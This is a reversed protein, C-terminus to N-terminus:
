RHWRETWTVSAGGTGRSMSITHTGPTLVLWDSELTPATTEGAVTAIHEECNISITAGVPSPVSVHMVTEGDLTLGWLNTPADRVAGAAFVSPMTPYDGGVTFTVDGGSPVSATGTSGYLAPEVQRFTVTVLDNYDVDDVTPAGEPVVLRRLGGDESLTLWRPTSVDLWSLLRSIAARPRRGRAPKVVLAVAITPGALRMGFVSAGNGVREEVYPQYDPLGVDAAGVYFYDNLRHGDFTITQGVM